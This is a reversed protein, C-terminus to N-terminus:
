YEILYALKSIARIKGALQCIFVGRMTKKGLAKDLQKVNKQKEKDQHYEMGNLWKLLTTNDFLNISSEQSELEFMLDIIEEDSLDKIENDDPFSYEIHTLQFYPQYDGKDYQNKISELVSTLPTKEAKKEFISYIKKFSAPEKDLIFPRLLHLLEYVDQYEFDSFVIELYQESSASIKELVPIKDNEIMRSTKLRNFNETFLTFLVLDNDDFTLDVLEELCTNDNKAVVCFVKKMEIIKLVPPNKIKCNNIISLQIPSALHASLTM